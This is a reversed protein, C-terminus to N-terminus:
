AIFKNRLWRRMPADYVADLVLAAIIPFPLFLLGTWPASAQPWQHFLLNWLSTFYHEMPLHLVYIAYSAIGLVSSIWHFTRSPSSCATLFVIVPFAIFVATLDFIASYQNFSPTALIACFILCPIAFGVRYRHRHIFWLRYLLVGALYSFLVREIGFFIESGNGGHDLSGSRM